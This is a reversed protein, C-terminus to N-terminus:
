IHVYRSIKHFNHINRFIANLHRDNMNLFHLVILITSSLIIAQQEPMRTQNQRDDTM